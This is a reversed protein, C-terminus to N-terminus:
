LYIYPMKTFLAKGKGTPMTYRQSLYRIAASLEGDPGGFQTVLYKAMEIDKCRINVPHELKKEYIWM